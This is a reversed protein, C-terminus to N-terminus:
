IYRPATKMLCLPTGIDVLTQVPSSGPPSVEELPADAKGLATPLHVQAAQPYDELLSVSAPQQSPLCIVLSFLFHMSTLTPLAHIRSAVGRM